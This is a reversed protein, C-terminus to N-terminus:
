EFDGVERHSMAMGLALAKMGELNGIIEWINQHEHWLTTAAAYKSEDDPQEFEYTLIVKKLKGEKAVKLVEELRDMLFEPVEEKKKEEKTEKPKEEEPKKDNIPSVVKLYDPRKKKTM